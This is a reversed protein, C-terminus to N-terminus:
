RRQKIGKRPRANPDRSRNRNKNKVNATAYYHQGTKKSQAKRENRRREKATFGKSQKAKRGDDEDDVTEFYRKRMQGRKDDETDEVKDLKLFSRGVPKKKSTKTASNGEEKSSEKLKRAAQISALMKQNDRSLFANVGFATVGINAPESNPASSKYKAIMKEMSPAKLKQTKSKPRKRDKDPVIETVDEAVPDTQSRETDVEGTSAVLPSEVDEGSTSVPSSGRRNEDPQLDDSAFDVGISIGSFDQHVSSVCKTAQSKESATNKDVSSTITVESQSTEPPGVSKYEDSPVTMKTKDSVGEKENEPDLECNPPKVFFPVKGRQWDNLVMKAVTRVDPEGGKLLKGTRQAVKELFDNPDTWDTVRYTKTIYDLKVRDLLAPIYDEPTELREVRVVGKLVIEADTDGTPYVVGPCDILFIRKMLTIYQWVKTEGPVPAVKCVKKARLTNIISSKGVNPYGIFGVSIQKKDIHLKGFQRLLQILAGKGFPNKVSAHFALTPYEASLLAVWRKTVWTPVLDVKNMVFVLHKHPKEKKLYTEVFKSRTGMPDRADLVQVVIDSSDIVKYLENWIRKSQGAGFIWERVEPRVGENDTVLDKDKEEDYKEASDEVTKLLDQLDSVKLNPRKRQKKPGFTTEFSETDLIHVRSNKSKEQLLTIPLKTQRMVVRYPDKLVKGMEEQFTQLASQTIVRTNGFWRRNPEVRAVSGSPLRSQFVASKIIKGAANRTPKGGKYMKLRKITTRDRMNHGGAGKLRDPNSSSASKSIKDKRKQKKITKAMNLTPSLNFVLSQEADTSLELKPSPWNHYSLKYVVVFSQLVRVHVCTCQSHTEHMIKLPERHDLGM